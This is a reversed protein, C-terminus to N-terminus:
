KVVLKDVYVNGEADTVKITYIGPAMDAALQTGEAMRVRKMTSGLVNVVEVTGESPLTMNVMEGRNVPNPFLNLAGAFTNNKTSFNLQFPTDLGGIIEDAKFSVSAENSEYIDGMEDYLRFSFPENNEGYMTLFVIYQDMSEVYIPRVAGRCTNGNFVGIEVNDSRLEENDINVVAVMNMNSPNSAMEPQWKTANDYQATLMGRESSPVIPYTFNFATSTGSKIMYGEGPNLQALTGVWSNSGANYYAIKTYSKIADGSQPNTYASLAYDVPSAFAVPYAVWNWGNKVEIPVENAHARNGRVSVNSANAMKIAYMKSIEISSLTGSWVGSSNKQVMRTADKIAQGNEGLVNELTTLDVGNIYTSWWNWGASLDFNQVSGWAPQNDTMGHSEPLMPTEQAFAMSALMVLSAMTLVLKKM